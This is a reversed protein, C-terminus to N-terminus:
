KKMDSDVYVGDAQNEQMTVVHLLIWDAGDMYDCKSSMYYLSYLIANHGNSFRVRQESSFLSMVTGVSCHCQLSYGVENESLQVDGASAVQLPSSGVSCRLRGPLENLPDAVRM